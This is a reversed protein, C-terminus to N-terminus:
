LLVPRIFVIFHERKYTKVDSGGLVMFTKEGLRREDSSSVMRSLGTVAVVEGPRLAVPFQANLATIKPVHVKQQQPGM